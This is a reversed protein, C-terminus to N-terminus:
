RASNVAVPPDRRKLIQALAALQVPKKLVHDIRPDFPAFGEVSEPTATVFVIPCLRDAAKIRRAMELGNMVPMLIDTVILDPKDAQYRRWGELGDEAVIVHGAHRALFPTLLVRVFEDDEVYLITFPIM